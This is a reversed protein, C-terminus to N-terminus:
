RKFYPYLAPQQKGSTTMTTTVEVSHREWYYLAGTETGVLLDPIGDRNFDSVVPGDTHGMLTRSIVRGMYQLVMKGDQMGLNKMWDVAPKSSFVLDKLGDGDWDAFTIKLRGSSGKKLQNLLIPKGDPFVFNREPHALLLEGDERYRMYVALFGEHDLMVLDNMGDKNYDMICPSTRWPALLANGDATGYGWDPKQPDGQWQVEIPKAASLLPQQRTGVNEFWVVNGHHHNALIDPLDDDNWYGVDITVYGWHAGEPLIRLDEGAVQLLEPADWELCGDGVNRIFGIYGAGNGALIDDRGDGDWDFIRPATLAGFDVFKAEQQFFRPPLFEPLGNIVRGTNQMFYVRGDEDGAILDTYGDRNFDIARPKTASGYRSDPLIVDGGYRLTDGDRYRYSQPTGVNEFYVYEGYNGVAVYDYDGDNDYDAFPVELHLGLGLFNGGRTKITEPPEYRPSVDSGANRFFLLCRGSKARVGCMLDHVGDNDFDIQKWTSQETDPVHGTAALPMDTKHWFVNQPVDLYRLLKDNVRDPTLVHTRGSVESVVFYKGDDGLRFRESSVKMGYRFLPMDINGTINEFYFVGSEAYCGSESVLLDLDGDGDFDMPMPVSKFGVDLDVTLSPNNYELKHLGTPVSRNCPKNGDDVVCSASLALVLGISGINRIIEM